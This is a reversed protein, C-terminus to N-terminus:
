LKREIADFRVGMPRGNGTVGRVILGNHETGTVNLVVSGLELEVVDGPRLDAAQKKTFHM